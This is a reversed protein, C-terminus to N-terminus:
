RREGPDLSWMSCISTGSSTAFELSNPAGFGLDIHNGDTAGTLVVSVDVGVRRVFVNARPQLFIVRQDSNSSITQYTTGITVQGEFRVPM